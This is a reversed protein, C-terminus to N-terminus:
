CRKQPSTLGLIPSVQTADLAYTHLTWLALLNKGGLPLVSYTAFTEALTSLLAAGDVPTGWPELAEFTLPSGPLADDAKSTARTAEMERLVGETAYALKLVAARVVDSTAESTQAVTQIFADQAEASGLALTRYLKPTGNLLLFTARLGHGSR